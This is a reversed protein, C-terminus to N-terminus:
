MMISTRESLLLQFHNIYIVVYNIYSKMTLTGTSLGARGKLVAGNWIGNEMGVLYIMLNPGLRFKLSRIM